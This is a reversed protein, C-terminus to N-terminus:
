IATFITSLQINPKTADNNSLDLSVADLEEPTTAIQLMYRRTYYDNLVSAMWVDIQNVLNKQKISGVQRFRALSLQTGANYYNYIYQEPVAEFDKLKQERVQENLINVLEGNVFRLIGSKTYAPVLGSYGVWGDQIMDETIVSGGLSVSEGQLKIYIM